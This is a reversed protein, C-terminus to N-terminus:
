SPLPRRGPFGLDTRHYWGLEPEGEIWCLRISVGGLMSPFDLLVPAIGKVELGQDNWASLIEEIRAEVAKLEPLGGLPSTGATDRDFAIEALDARAAILARADEIISPMLARAEDLTFLREM